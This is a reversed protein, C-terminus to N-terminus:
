APPAQHSPTAVVLLFPFAVKRTSTWGSSSLVPDVGIRITEDQIGYEIPPPETESAPDNFHRTWVCEEKEASDDVRVRVRWIVLAVHPSSALGQTLNYRSRSPDPDLRTLFSCPPPYRPQPGHASSYTISSLRHVHVTSASAAPRPSIHMPGRKCGFRTRRAFHTTECSPLRRSKRSSRADASGNM